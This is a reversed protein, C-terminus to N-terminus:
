LPWRLHKVLRTPGTLTNDTTM